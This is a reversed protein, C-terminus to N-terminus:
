EENHSNLLSKMFSLYYKSADKKWNDCITNAYKKSAVKLNMEM